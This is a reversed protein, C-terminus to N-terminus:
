KIPTAIEFVESPISEENEVIQKTSERTDEVIKDSNENPWEEEPVPVEM